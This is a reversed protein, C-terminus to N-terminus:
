KIKVSFIFYKRALIHQLQQRQEEEGKTSRTPM